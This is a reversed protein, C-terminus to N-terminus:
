IEKPPGIEGYDLVERVQTQPDPAGIIGKEEIKEVMRASRTYGIRMKKQLMSISARGEQRIIRIAEDMLPDEDPDKQLEKWLSEQKLPTSVKKTFMSSQNAIDEPKTTHRQNEWFDVLTNIEKETVMTGQLRVPAPADPALFLMDGRGLLREAGPQDLIVRSDVGSAVAFAIRAPFNAKILGTLIDTSPRQTALILHIGTARSLQALRTIARETEDPALMMLDAMEDIVLLLYPLEKEQKLRQKQNYELINRVGSESFIHFRMDMERLMWQLAGVVKEADVIVPALLHPIGNYNTLEVRKPDVMIIRIQDPTLTMLFCALISNICVSKGSNTAGAILLHPLNTLDVAVPNGSVDKGLGFKLLGKAESFARSNLIELLNVPSIDGNPVEIGVYNKGPVPAQIRIQTAQLALAIDDQLRVINSVRVLTRGSRTEIYDPKVGYLTIAPGRRIEVVHAPTSFSRLTEEIVRARHKDIDDNIEAKVIPQLTQHPDPLLWTFSESIENQQDNTTIKSYEKNLSGQSIAQGINKTESSQSSYTTKNQRLELKALKSRERKDKLKQVLDRIAKNINDGTKKTIDAMSLDLLLILGTLLWASLIIVMGANGFWDTLKNKFFVGILGGANIETSNLISIGIIQSLVLLNFFILIFGIIRETSVRPFKSLNRLLLWLGFLIFALPLLYAGWGFGKVLTSVWWGSVKGAQRSFHSVFTIGGFLIFLIGLVDVRREPSIVKKPTSSTPKRIRQNTRKSQAKRKTATTKKQTSTKKRTTNSKSVRAM